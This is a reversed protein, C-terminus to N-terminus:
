WPSQRMAKEVVTNQTCADEGVKPRRRTVRADVVVV